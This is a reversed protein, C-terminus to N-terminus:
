LLRPSAPFEPSNEIGRRVLFAVLDSERVRYGKKAGVRVCPLEGGEFLRYVTSTGVCLRRSVISVPLLRDDM